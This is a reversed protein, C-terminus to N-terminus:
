VMKKAPTGIYTGADCLDNVVTAGAGITIKDSININNKITAGAGVFVENGIKCGGAIASNVSIHACKGIKCDHDISANTNIIVGDAIKADPNVVANAMLVIGNGLEVGYGINASPHIANYLRCQVTILMDMVQLRTSNNGIAVIFEYDAAFKVYDSVVGLNPYTWVKATKNDDLFGVLIDGSKIIIDAIVKGHGSAGIIIVNKNM